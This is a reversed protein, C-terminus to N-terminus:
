GESICEFSIVDFISGSMGAELDLIVSTEKTMELINLTMVFQFFTLMIKLHAGNLSEYVIVKSTKEFQLLESNSRPYYPISIWFTHHLKPRKMM